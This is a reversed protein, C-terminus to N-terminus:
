NEKIPNEDLEYVLEYTKRFIDPNCPYCEGHVGKIIYDGINARMLGKLTLIYLAGTAPEIHHKTHELFNLVLHENAEIFQIAEIVVPKKRYRM